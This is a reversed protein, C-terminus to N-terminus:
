NVYRLEHKTTGTEIEKKAREFDRRQISLILDSSVIGSPKPQEIFLYLAILVLPKLIYRGVLVHQPNYFNTADVVHM